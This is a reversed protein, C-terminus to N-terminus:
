NASTPHASPMTSPLNPISRRPYNQYTYVMWASFQLGKRDIAEIIRDFYGDDTVERSVRPRIRTKGFRSLDPAFYVTGNEGFYIPRPNHPLYYESRHYCPTLLVEDCAALDVIRDLSVNLGEHTLDWPYTYLSVVFNRSAM